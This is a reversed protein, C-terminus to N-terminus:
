FKYIKEPEIWHLNLNECEKIFEEKSKCHKTYLTDNVISIDGYVNKRMRYMMAHVDYKKDPSLGIIFMKDNNMLYDYLEEYNTSMSYPYYKLM